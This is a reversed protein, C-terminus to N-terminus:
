LELFSSFSGLIETFFQLVSSLLKDYPSLFRSLSQKTDTLRKRKRIHYVQCTSNELNEAKEARAGFHRSLAEKAYVFIDDVKKNKCALSVRTILMIIVLCSILKVAIQLTVFPDLGTAYSRLTRQLELNARTLM